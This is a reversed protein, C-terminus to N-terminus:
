CARSIRGTGSCEHTKIDRASGHGVRHWIRTWRHAIDRYSGLKSAFSFGPKAQCVAGDAERALRAGVSPTLRAGVSPALRAGASVRLGQLLRAQERLQSRPQAQCVADHAERALRAGVSPTLRAGVSPAIETPASSARSASVETTGSVGRRSSRPCAESWCIRSIGTPSRPRRSTASINLL